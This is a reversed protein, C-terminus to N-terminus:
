KSQKPNQNLLNLINTTEAMRQGFFKAGELTYHHADSFIKHGDNTMGYCIQRTPDCLYEEKNIVPVGYINAIANISENLQSQSHKNDYYHKNFTDIFNELGGNENLFIELNENTHKQIFKDGLHQTKSKYFETAANFLIVTKGDEKLRKLLHDLGTLDDSIINYNRKEDCKGVTFRTSILIIDSKKYHSSNFVRQRHNDDETNSTDFCRIEAKLEKIDINTYIDPNLYIANFIDTAHSNGIILVKIKDDAFENASINKFYKKREQDLNQYDFSYNSLVISSFREKLGNNSIVYLHTLVILALAVGLTKYLKSRCIKDKNRFPQEIFNYSLVSLAFTMVILILKETLPLNIDFNIQRAFAFLPFHWLYASYSIKGIGVFISRSLLRGTYNTDRAYFIFLCTGIIPILTYFSPHPIRETDFWIVSVIILILGFGSLTNQLPLKNAAIFRKDLIAVLSGALLEWFRSIPSFYNQAPLAEYIQTFYLSYLLLATFILFVFRRAYRHSLLLLLPFLIYFQEEISLSWSHLLPMLLSDPAGYESTTQAFFFNSVFFVASLASYAYESFSAPQSIIYAVPLCALIVTFLLPLIRRIRREYFAGIHISGTTEIEGLLIRTILFGSIVFFIDVGIFGGSFLIGGSFVFQAHYIIVAVVAIARLGDIEPRYQM